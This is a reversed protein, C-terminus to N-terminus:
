STLQQSIAEQGIETVFQLRPKHKYFEAAGDILRRAGLKRPYSLEMLKLSLTMFTKRQPKIEITIVSATINNTVPSAPSAEVRVM